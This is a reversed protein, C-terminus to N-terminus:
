AALGERANLLESVARLLRETTFPKLLVPTDRLTGSLREQESLGSVALVAVQQGSQRVAEILAAGGMSPMVLDTLILDVQDEHRKFCELGESGDSATLV